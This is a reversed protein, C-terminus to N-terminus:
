SEASTACTMCLRVTPNVQLRAFVIAEGCTACMGFDDEQMRQLTAHLLLIRQKTRTKAAQAMAQSQIADLRSLRGLRTQDLEVTSARAHQQDMQSQLSELEAELLEQLASIADLTLM